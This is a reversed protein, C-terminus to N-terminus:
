ERAVTQDKKQKLQSSHLNGDGEEFRPMNPGMMLNNNSISTMNLRSLDTFESQDLQRLNNSTVPLRHDSDRNSDM